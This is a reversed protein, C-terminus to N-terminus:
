ASRIKRNRARELLEWLNKGDEPFHAMGMETMGTRNVTIEEPMNKSVTYNLIKLVNTAEM